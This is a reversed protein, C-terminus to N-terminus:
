DPNLRELQTLQAINWRYTRTMPIIASLNKNVAQSESAEWNGGCCWACREKASAPHALGRTFMWRSVISYLRTDSNFQSILWVYLYCSRLTINYARTKSTMFKWIYIDIMIIIIDIRTFSFGIYLYLSSDLQSTDDSVGMHNTSLSFFIKSICM